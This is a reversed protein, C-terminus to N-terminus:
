IPSSIRQFLVKAWQNTTPYTSNIFIDPCGVKSVANEVRKDLDKM